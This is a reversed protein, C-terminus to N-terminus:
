LQQRAQLAGKACWCLCVCARVKDNIPYWSGICTPTYLLAHLPCHALADFACSACCAPHSVLHAGALLSSRQVRGRVNCAKTATVPAPTNRPTSVTKSLCPAPMSRTAASDHCRLNAVAAHDGAAGHQPVQPMGAVDHHPERSLFCSCCFAQNSTSTDTRFNAPSRTPCGLPAALM